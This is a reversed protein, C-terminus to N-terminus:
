KRAIWKYAAASNKWFYKEYVKPGKATFYERVVQIVVAYPAMHESVPWNSGYVLRDPGFTNWLKDLGTRYFRLDRPVAGNVRRLVGSVKSYVQSRQGLHKFSVVARAHAERNPVADFPMHDIVIRLRPVRDTLTVLDGFMTEDGIADLALDLGAMREMDAVFSAEALGAAIVHGNLRIGRFLPNRALRALNQRFEPKGPELHGMFGVIIPNDKALNLIWDNDALWPSAEIVVTGRVGFPKAIARFQAPLVTKYLVPDSKSPWPVGRPRSPDYFHTHTDIIKAPSSHRATQGLAGTTLTALLFERRNSFLLKSMLLGRENPCRSGM